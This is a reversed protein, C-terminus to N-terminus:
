LPGGSANAERVARDIRDQVRSDVPHVCSGPSVPQTTPRDRYVVHIVEKTAATAAQTDAVAAAATKDTHKSIESSTADRARERAILDVNAKAQEAAYVATRAEYGANYYHRSFGWWALGLVALLILAQGLRTNLLFNM